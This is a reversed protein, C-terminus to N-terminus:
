IICFLSLIIGILYLFFVTYLKIKVFYFFFIVAFYISFLILFIESKAYFFYYTLIIINILPLIMFVVYLELHFERKVIYKWTKWINKVELNERIAIDIKNLEDETWNLNINYWNGDNAKSHLFTPILNKSYSDYKIVTEVFKNMFLDYVNVGLAKSSNFGDTTTNDINSIRMIFDVCHAKDQDNDLFSLFNSGNTFCSTYDNTKLYRIGLLYELCDSGSSLFLSRYSTLLIMLICSYGLVVELYYSYDNYINYMSQIM